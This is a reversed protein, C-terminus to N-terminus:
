ERKREDRRRKVFAPIGAAIVGAPLDGRVVAGAAVITGRGIHSGPLVISGAGLWVDDEIIVPGAQHGQDLMPLAPDDSKHNISWILASPGIMVCNGIRVGGAAEIQSFRNLLLRDGVHLSEPHMLVVHQQIVPSVGCSGLKRRYVRARMRIGIRGPIARLVAAQWESAEPGCAWYLEKMRQIM